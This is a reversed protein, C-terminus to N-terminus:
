ISQKKDRLINYLLEKARYLQAKVTGIPMNMIEAIEEYSHEEFYRLEILKSYKPKLEKVISRLINAKQKNILLGEPNLDPTEVQIYRHNGDEWRDDQSAGAIRTHEKKRRIFDICHNSAIRFLWTSFAYYPSYKDINQFVKAFTEITLDEADTQNNVMKCLMFYVSDKYRRLLIAFAKEDGKQVQLVLEYDERARQSLGPNIEM